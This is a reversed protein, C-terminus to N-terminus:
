PREGALVATVPRYGPMGDDIWLVAVGVLLVLELLLYGVASPGPNAYLRSVYYTVTVFIDGTVATGTKPVVPWLLAGFELSRGLALPGYLVDAPLHLLYGVVFAVGARPRDLRVAVVSVLASLPLAVFVSHALSTGSPLVEFVWALPKDVLDPFQSGFAVALGAGDSVGLRRLRFYVSVGVYGIALHDWPFM